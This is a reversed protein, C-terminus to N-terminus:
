PLSRVQSCAFPLAGNATMGLEDDSESESTTPGVDSDSDQEPSGPMARRALSKGGRKPSSAGSRATSASKASITGSQLMDVSSHRSAASKASTAGSKASRRGEGESDTQSSADSDSDDQAARNSLNRELKAAQKQSNYSALAMSRYASATRNPGPSSAKGPLGAAEPDAFSSGASGALAAGANYSYSASQKPLSGKPQPGHEDYIPSQPIDVMSRAANPVTAETAAASGGSKRFERLRAEMPSERALKGAALRRMDM